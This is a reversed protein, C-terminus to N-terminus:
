GQARHLWSGGTEGRTHSWGSVRAVSNGGTGNFSNLALLGNVLVPWVDPVLTAQLPCSLLGETRPYKVSLRLPISTCWKGM